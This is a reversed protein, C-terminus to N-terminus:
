SIAKSFGLLKLYIHLELKRDIENLNKYFLSTHTLKAGMTYRIYQALAEMDL